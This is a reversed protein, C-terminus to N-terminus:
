RPPAVVVPDPYPWPDYYGGYYGIWGYGGYGWPIGVPVIVATSGGSGTGRQRPQARGVVPQGHGRPSHPGDHSVADTTPTAETTTADTGTPTTPASEGNPTAVAGSLPTTPPSGGAPPRRRPSRDTPASSGHTGGSPQRGGGSSSGGAHTRPSRQRTGQDTSGVVPTASLVLAAITVALVQTGLKVDAREGDSATMRVVDAEAVIEASKKLLRAALRSAPIYVLFRTGKSM